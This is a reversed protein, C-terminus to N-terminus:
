NREKWKYMKCVLCFHSWLISFNSYFSKQLKRSSKCLMLYCCKDVLLLSKEAVHFIDFRCVLIKKGIRTQIILCLAGNIRSNTEFNHNPWYFELYWVFYSSSISSFIFFAIFICRKRLIFVRFKIETVHSNTYNVFWFEQTNEPKQMRVFPGMSWFVIRASHFFTCQLLKM